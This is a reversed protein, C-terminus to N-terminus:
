AVGAGMMMGWGGLWCTVQAEDKYYGQFVTPGRVCVEGRPHPKDARTYSM